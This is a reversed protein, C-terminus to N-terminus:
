VEFGAAEAVLEFIDFVEIGQEKGQETLPRESWPCASVLTNVGDLAAAASRIDDIGIM